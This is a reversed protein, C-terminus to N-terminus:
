VLQTLYSDMCGFMQITCVYNALFHFKTTSIILTKVKQTLEFQVLQARVLGSSTNTNTGTVSVADRGDASSTHIPTVM